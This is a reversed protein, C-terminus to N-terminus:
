DSFYVSTIIEFVLAIHNLLCINYNWFGTFYSKIFLNECEKLPIDILSIRGLFTPHPPPSKQNDPPSFSSFPLNKEM